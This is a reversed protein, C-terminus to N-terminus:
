TVVTHHIFLYNYLRCHRSGQMLSFVFIEVTKLSYQMDPLGAELVMEARLEAESAIDLM